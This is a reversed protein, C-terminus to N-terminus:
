SQSDEIPPIPYACVLTQSLGNFACEFTVKGGSVIGLAKVFHGHDMGQDVYVRFLYEGDTLEEINYDWQPITDTRTYQTGGMDKSSGHVSLTSWRDPQVWITVPM